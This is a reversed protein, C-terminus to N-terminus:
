GASRVYEITVAIGEKALYKVYAQPMPADLFPRGHKEETIFILASLKKKRKQNWIIVKVVNKYFEAWANKGSVKFEYASSNELDVIDIKQDLEPSVIAEIQFRDPDLAHVAGRWAKGIAQANKTNESIDNSDKIRASFALQAAQVIPNEVGRESTAM